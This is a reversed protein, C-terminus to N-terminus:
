KKCFTRSFFISKKPNFTNSKAILDLSKLRPLNDITKFLTQVIETTKSIEETWVIMRLVELTKKKELFKIVPLLDRKTQTLIDLDFEKLPIEELSKLVEVNTPHQTLSVFIKLKKLDILKKMVVCVSSDIKFNNVFNIALVELQTAQSLLDAVIKMLEVSSIRSFEIEFSRLGKFHALSMKPIIKDCFVDGLSLKEISAPYKNLHWLNDLLPSTGVSPGNVELNKLKGAYRLFDTMLKPYKSADTPVNVDYFFYNWYHNHNQLSFTCDLSKLHKLYKPWFGFLGQCETKPNICDLVSLVSLNSIRKAIYLLGPSYLRKNWLRSSSLDLNRVFKTNKFVRLLRAKRLVKRKWIESHDTDDMEITLKSLIHYGKNLLKRYSSNSHVRFEQFCLPKMKQLKAQEM